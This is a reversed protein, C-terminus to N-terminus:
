KGLVVATPRGFLTAWLSGISRARVCDRAISAFERFQIVFPNVSQLPKTIGYDVPAGEPEYTGFLRDWIMFIGGYNKDLYEPNRGHHVRHASPTNLVGELLGLRDIRQTHIWTQYTVMVAVAIVTQAPPFGLLIMPSFFVWLFASEVWSLRYATTLDFEPSSHHVSHYTWLARVEHEFRHEWYYLFDVGVLASIWTLPTVPLAWLAFPEVALLGLFFLLGFASREVLVYGIAVLANAGNEWLAASRNRLLNWGIEALTLLVFVGEVLALGEIWNPYAALRTELDM